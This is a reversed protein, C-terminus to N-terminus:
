HSLPDMPGPQSKAGADQMWGRAEVQGGEWPGAEKGSGGAVFASRMTGAEKSRGGAETTRGGATAVASAGRTREKEKQKM